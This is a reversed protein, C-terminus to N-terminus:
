ESPLEKLVELATNLLMSDKATDAVAEPTALDVHRSLLAQRAAARAPEAQDAFGRRITRVLEAGRTLTGLGEIAAARYDASDSELMRCAMATLAPTSRSPDIEASLIDASEECDTLLLRTLSPGELRPAAFERALLSAAVPSTKGDRSRLIDLLDNRSVAPWTAGPFSVMM